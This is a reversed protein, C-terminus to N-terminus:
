RKVRENPMFKDCKCFYDKGEDKLTCYCWFWFRWKWYTCNECRKHRKNIENM